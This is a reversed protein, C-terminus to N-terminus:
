LITVINIFSLEECIFKRYCRQDMAFFTENHYFIVIDRGNVNCKLKRKEVLEQKNCIFVSAAAPSFETEPSDDATDSPELMTPYGFPGM